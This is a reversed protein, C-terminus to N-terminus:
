QFKVYYRITLVAHQIMLYFHFTTIRYRLSTSLDVEVSGFPGARLAVIEPAAKGPGIEPDIRRFLQDADVHHLRDLLQQRVRGREFRHHKLRDDILRGPPRHYSLHPGRGGM